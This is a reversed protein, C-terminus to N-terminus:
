FWLIRLFECKYVGDITCFQWLIFWLQVNGIITGIMFDFQSVILLILLILQVRTVWDMGVIAILLVIILTISGILRVDDLFFIGHGYIRARWVGLSLHSLVYWFMGTEGAASKRIFTLCAIHKSHKLSGCLVHDPTFLMAMKVSTSINLRCHQRTQLGDNIELLPDGFNDTRSGGGFLCVRPCFSFSTILQSPKWDVNLM